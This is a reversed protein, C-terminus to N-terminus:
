TSAPETAFVLWQRKFCNLTTFGNVLLQVQTFPSRRLCLPRVIKLRPPPIRVYDEHGFAQHHSLTLPVEKEGEHGCTAHPLPRICAGADFEHGCKLSIPSSPQCRTGGEHGGRGEDDMAASTGPLSESRRAGTRGAGRADANYCGFLFGRPLQVPRDFLRGRLLQLRWGFLFGRPLQLHHATAPMRFAPSTALHSAM